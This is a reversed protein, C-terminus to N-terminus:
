VLATRSTRVTSSHHFWGFYCAVGSTLAHLWVDHGYLPILGFTTNLVPILGMVALVAYLVALGKAFTRPANSMMGERASASGGIGIALHVINHLVNVHFLGLLRGHQAEVALGTHAVDYQVGIGFLGMLGVLLYIVGAAMAFNRVNVM